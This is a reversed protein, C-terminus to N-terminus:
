LPRKAPIGARRPYKGPTPSTKEIIILTRRIDTGPIVCPKTRVSGGGLVSIANEASELEGDADPGKYAIFIGGTRVFPLCYECLVPLGAVARSVTIDFTERYQEDKALDEARGSRVDAGDLPLECATDRLFDVRKNLSDVLTVKLEPYVIALPIGPFGAGTGVDILRAGPAGLRESAEPFAEPILSDLFHRVAVEDPDTIATLNVRENGAILLGYFREFRELMADNLEIGLEAAGRKLIEEM